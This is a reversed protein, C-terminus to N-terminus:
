AEVMADIAAQEWRELQSDSFYANTCEIWHGNILVGLLDVSAACGPGCMPSDPNMVAPEERQHDFELKVEADDFFADIIHSGPQPIPDAILRTHAIQKMLSKITLQADALEAMQSYYLEQITVDAGRHTATSSNEAVALTQIHPYVRMSSVKNMGVIGPM